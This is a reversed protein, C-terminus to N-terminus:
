LTQCCFWSPDQHRSSHWHRLPAIGPEMQSRAEQCDGASHVRDYWRLHVYGSRRGLPQRASIARARIRPQLNKKRSLSVGMSKSVASAIAVSTSASSGLGAGVPIQCDVNVSLGGSKGIHDLTSEAAIKLPKLLGASNHISLPPDGKAFLKLPLDVEVELVTRSNPQAEVRSYLNIAMAIAPAGLVVFHEGSLIVKGPARSYARPRHSPTTSEM